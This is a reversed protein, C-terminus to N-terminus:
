DREKEKAIALTEKLWSQGVPSGLWQIVTSAVLRDRDNCHTPRNNDPSLLYDLGTPISPNHANSKNFAQWAQAFVLEMPDTDYRHPHMGQWTSDIRARAKGPKGM